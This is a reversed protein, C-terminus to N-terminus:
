GHICDQYKQDAAGNQDGSINKVAAPQGLLPTHIVGLGSWSMLQLIAHVIDRGFGRDQHSVM